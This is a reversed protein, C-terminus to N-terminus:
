AILENFGKTRKNDYIYRGLKLFCSNLLNSNDIDFNNLTLPFVPKAKDIGM